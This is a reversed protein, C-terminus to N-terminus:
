AAIADAVYEDLLQVITRMSDPSVASSALNWLMAARLKGPGPKMECIELLMHANDKLEPHIIANLNLLVELKRDDLSISADKSKPPLSALSDTIHQRFKSATM